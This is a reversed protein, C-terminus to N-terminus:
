RLECTIERGAASCLDDLAAAVADSLPAGMEFSAGDIALVICRRPLRGLARALEITHALGMGHSSVAFLSAPLPTGADLRHITGAPAGSRCADLLVVRSRGDLLPLLEAMDGAAEAVDFDREGAAALRRAALRGAADDGALPNGIGIVLPRATAFSVARSECM